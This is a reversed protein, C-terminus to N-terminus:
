DDLEQLEIIDPERVRPDSPGLFHRTETSEVDEFGIGEPLEGPDRERGRIASVRRAQEAEEEETLYKYGRSDLIRASVIIILNKRVDRTTRRRFMWGLLPIDGLIPVKAEVEQKESDIMGGLVVHYGDRVTVKVNMRRDVVVPREIIIDQDQRLGEPLIVPQTISDISKRRFIPEILLSIDRSDRGVSPTVTLSFGTSADRAFVPVVVPEATEVGEAYTLDTRDIRYDDVYWLDQSEIFRAPSNSTATVSPATVVRGKYESQLTRMTAQFQPNTLIGTLHFRLGDEHSVTDGATTGVRRDFMTGTGADIVLADEGGRKSLAYNATINWDVGLEDFDEASVEIFRTTVKVQVPNEDLTKVMEEVQDCVEPTSRLFLINRKRDLYYRSGEPWDILGLEIVELLREIDSSESPMGGGGGGVDDGGGGAVVNHLTDTLGKSLRITRLELMPQDPTTIYIASKTRAYTINASRTIFDLVERVSTNQVNITISRGEVAVPDVILNLGVARALLDLVYSLPADILDMSVKENLKRELAIEEPSLVRVEPEYDPRPIRVDPVDPSAMRETRELMEFTALEGEAAAERVAEATYEMRADRYLKRVRDDHPAYERIRRCAAICEAWRGENFLRLAQRYDRELRERAFADIEDPDAGEDPRRAEWAEIRAALLRAREFAERDGPDIKALLKRAADYEGRRVLAEAREYLVSGELDAPDDIYDAPDDHPPSVHPLDPGPPSNADDAREPEGGARREAQEAAMRYVALQERRIAYGVDNLLKAARAHDPEAELARVLVNRAEQYRGARYLDHGREVLDSTTPEGARVPPASLGCLALLIVPLVLRRIRGSM